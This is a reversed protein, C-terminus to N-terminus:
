RAHWPLSIPFLWSLGVWQAFQWVMLPGFIAVITPILLQPFPEVGMVRLVLERALGQFYPHLLFIALSAQGIRSLLSNIKFGSISQALAVCAISGIVGSVIYAGPLHGLDIVQSVILISFLLFALIWSRAGVDRRNVLIYGSFMAGLIMFPMYHLVLSFTGIDKTAIAFVISIALM